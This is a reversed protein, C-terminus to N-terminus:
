RSAEESAFSAPYRDDLARTSRVVTVDAIQTLHAIEMVTAADEVALTLVGRGNARIQDPRFDIELVIAHEVALTTTDASTALVTVRDGPVLTAPSRDLPISFTLEHVSTFPESGSTAAAVLHSIDILEGASLDHLVVAGDLGEVSNLTTASLQASLEMPEFRVDAATITEGPRLDRTSVLYSTTPQSNGNTALTFTSLAGVTVLLGGLLARSSPLARRTRIAHPAQLPAKVSSATTATTMQQEANASRRSTTRWRGGVASLFIDFVM